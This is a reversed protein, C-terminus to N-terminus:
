PGAPLADPSFEMRAWAQGGVWNVVVIKEDYENVYQRYLDATQAMVERMEGANDPKIRIWVENPKPGFDKGGIRGEQLDEEISTPQHVQVTYVPFSELAEDRFVMARYYQEVEDVVKEPTGPAPEPVPAEVMDAPPAPAPETQVENPVAPGAPDAEPSPNDPRIAQVTAKEPAPAMNRDPPTERATEPSIFIVAAIVAAVSVIGLTTFLTKKKMM